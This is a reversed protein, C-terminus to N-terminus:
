PYISILLCAVSLPESSDFTLAGQGLFLFGISMGIAQHFGYDAMSNSTSSESIPTEIVKRAIRLLRFTELDGTGSMVLGLALACCSVVKFKTRRDVANKNDSNPGTGAGSFTAQHRAIPISLFLNLTQMILSAVDPSSSGAYKLALSLIGGALINM